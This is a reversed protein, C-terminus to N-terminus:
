ARGLASAAPQDRLSFAAERLRETTIEDGQLTEVIAGGSFVCVRDVIRSMEDLDATVVVVSLGSRTLADLTRHVDEKVGVDIGRTPEDLILLRPDTALLRGLCVKQQNGGSLTDVSVAPSPAKVGMDKFTRRILAAERRRRVFGFRSM